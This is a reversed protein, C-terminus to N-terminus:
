EGTTRGGDIVLENGTIFSSADSCLWIVSAAIEDTTGM